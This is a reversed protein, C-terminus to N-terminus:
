VKKYKKSMLDNRNIEEILYNRSEDVNKLRFEQSINQESM